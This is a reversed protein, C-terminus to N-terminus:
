KNLNNIVRLLMAKRSILSYIAGHGVPPKHIGCVERPYPAMLESIERFAMSNTQLLMTQINKILTFLPTKNNHRIYSSAHKVM